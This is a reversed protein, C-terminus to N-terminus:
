AKDDAERKAQSAVMKEQMPKMNADMKATIEKMLGQNIKRRRRGKGPQSEHQRGNKGANRNNTADGTEPRIISSASTFEIISRTNLKTVVEQCWNYRTLYKLRRESQYNTKILIEVV